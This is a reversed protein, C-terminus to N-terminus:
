YSPFRLLAPQKRERLMVSLSNKMWRSLVYILKLGPNSFVMTLFVLVFVERASCLVWCKSMNLKWPRLIKGSLLDRRKVNKGMGANVFNVHFYIIGKTKFLSSHVEGTHLATVIEIEPKFLGTYFLKRPKCLWYNNLTKHGKEPPVIIFWGVNAWAKRGSWKGFSLIHPIAKGLVVWCHWSHAGAWLNIFAACSSFFLVLM